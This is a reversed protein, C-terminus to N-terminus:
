DVKKNQIKGGQAMGDIWASSSFVPPFSVSVHVCPSLTVEESSVSPSALLVRMAL